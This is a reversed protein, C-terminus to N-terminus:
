GNKRGEKIEKLRQVQAAPSPAKMGAQKMSESQNARQIQNKVMKKRDATSGIRNSSPNQMEQYEERREKRFLNTAAFIDFDLHFQRGLPLHELGMLETPRFGYEDAMLGAKVM